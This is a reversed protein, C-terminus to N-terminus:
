SMSDDLCLRKPDDKVMVHGNNELLLEYHVAVLGDVAVINMNSVTSIYHNLINAVYNNVSDM